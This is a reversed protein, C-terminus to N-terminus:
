ALEATINVFPYTHGATPPASAPLRGRGKQGQGWSRPARTTWHSDWTEDSDGGLCISRTSVLDQLPHAGGSSLRPTPPAGVPSCVPRATPSGPTQTGSGLFMRVGRREPSCGM